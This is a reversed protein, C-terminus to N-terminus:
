LLADLARPREAAQEGRLPDLPPPLGRDLARREAVARVVRLADLRERGGGMDRGAMMVM